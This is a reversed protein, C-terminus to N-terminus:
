SVLHAPVGSKILARKAKQHKRIWIKYPKDGQAVNFANWLARQEPTHLFNEINKQKAPKAGKHQLKECRIKIRGARAILTFDPPYPTEPPHIKGKAPPYAYKEGYPWIKDIEKRHKKRKKPQHEKRWYSTSGFRSRKAM